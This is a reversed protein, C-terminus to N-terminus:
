WRPPKYYMMYFHHFTSSLWTKSLSPTDIIIISLPRCAQKRNNHPRHPNITLTIIIIRVEEHGNRAAAILLSCSQEGEEFKTNVIKRREESGVRKDLIEMQRRLQGLLGDRAALYVQFPFMTILEFDM